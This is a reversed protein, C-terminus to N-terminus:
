GKLNDEEHQDIPPVKDRAAQHLTVVGSPRPAPPHNSFTVVAHDPYRHRCFSAPQIWVM